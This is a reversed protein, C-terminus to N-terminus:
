LERGDAGKRRFAKTRDKNNRMKDNTRQKSMEEFMSVIGSVINSYKDSYAKYDEKDHNHENSQQLQNVANYKTNSEELAEQMLDDINISQQEKESLQYYKELLLSKTEVNSEDLVEDNIREPFAQKLEENILPSLDNLKQTYQDKLRVFTQYEIRNNKYEDPSLDDLERDLKNVTRNYISITFLTDNAQKWAPTYLSYDNEPSSKQYENKIEELPLKIQYDKMLQVAYNMEEHTLNHNSNYVTDFEHELLEKQYDFSLESAERLEKFKDLEEDFKNGAKELEELEEKVESKFNSSSFGFQEVLKPNREYDDFLQNYFDKKVNITNADRELKQKWNNAQSHFDTYLKKSIPYDVYGKAREVMKQTAEIKEKNYYNKHRISNFLENFNDETKYNQLNIVNSISRNYVKVEENKKAYYTTPQYEIGQNKMYEKQRKEFQYEERTLRIEPKEIKGQDKFSKHSYTKDLGYEKSKENLLESWTKRWELLKNRNDWDNLKVSKTERWGKSNYIQNGEEDLKPVRKSKRNEWNGNENFERVTLMIHAHPNNEDDRHISTDAVMGADVFNQKVYKETVERQQEHTMNNPLAVLVNRSLRANDRNEFEEVENWLRERELTWQPANDPKMIFSEPEVFRNRYFKTEGDKLSYLRDGSRYSAMAVASQTSSSSVGVDFHYHGNAM